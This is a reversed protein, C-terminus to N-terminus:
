GRNDGRYYNKFINEPLSGEIMVGAYNSCFGMSRGAVVESHTQAESSRPRLKSRPKLNVMAKNAAM